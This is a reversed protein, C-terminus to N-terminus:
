GVGREALRHEALPGTVREGHDCWGPGAGIVDRADPPGYRGGGAYRVLALVPGRARAQLGPGGPPRGTGCVGFGPTRILKIESNSEETRTATARTWSRRFRIPPRLPSGIPRLGRATRDLWRSGFRLPRQIRVGWRGKLALRRRLAPLRRAQSGRWGACAPGPLRRPAGDRRHHGPGRRRRERRANRPRTAAARGRHRVPLM